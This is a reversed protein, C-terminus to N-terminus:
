QLNSREDDAFSSEGTLYLNSKSPPNFSSEEQLGEGSETIEKQLIRSQRTDPIVLLKDLSPKNTPEKRPVNPSSQNM